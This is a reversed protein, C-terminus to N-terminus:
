VACWSSRHQVDQAVVVGRLLVRRDSGPSFFLRFASSKVGVEPEHSFMTSIKKPMMVRWAM